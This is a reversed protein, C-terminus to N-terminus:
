PRLSPQVVDYLEFWLERVNTLKSLDRRSLEKSVLAVTPEPAEAILSETLWRVMAPTNGTRFLVDGGDLERHSTALVTQRRRRATSVIRLWALRSLQEAGDIVILGGDILTRQHASVLSSMRRLHFLQALWRSSATASLQVPAIAPYHSKLTPMLTALLTSKGSGHPGVILGIPSNRLDAALAVAPHVTGYRNGAFRYLMAGPRVFRTSFPNSTIPPISM